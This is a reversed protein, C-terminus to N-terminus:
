IGFRGRYANFNQRIEQESLARNYIQVISIRGNWYFSDSWGAKGIDIPKTQIGRNGTLTGSFNLNNNIYTNLFGGNVGSTTFGVCQWKNLQLTSVSNQPLNQGSPGISINSNDWFGVSPYSNSVSFQWSNSNPSTTNRKNILWNLYNGEYLQSTLSIPYVWCFVSLALNSDSSFNSIRAYDNSGDFVMSGSNSSNYGVGNVLTANNGNQTLDTWTTGTGTYSKMNASDLCLVLGDTIIKPSHLLAM